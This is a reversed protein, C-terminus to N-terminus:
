FYQLCAFLLQLKPVPLLRSAAHFNPPLRRAGRQQMQQSLLRLEAWKIASYPVDINVNKFNSKHKHLDHILVTKSIRLWL